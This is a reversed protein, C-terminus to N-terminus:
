SWLIGIDDKCRWWEAHGMSNHNNFRTWYIGAGAEVGGKSEIYQIGASNSQRRAWQDQVACFLDTQSLGRNAIWYGGWTLFLTAFCCIAKGCLLVVVAPMLEPAASLGRLLLIPRPLIRCSKFLIDALHSEKVKLTVQLISVGCTMNGTLECNIRQWGRFYGCGWPGHYVTSENFPLHGEHITTGNNHTWQTQQKEEYM